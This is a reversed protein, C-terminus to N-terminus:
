PIDILIDDGEVKVPFKVLQVTEDFDNVGSRCDFEWAHWPCILRGGDVNGQGLPGGEHPCVGEFASLEGGSNCIAFTKEGVEAEMVSDPDLTSLTGVKVFAM